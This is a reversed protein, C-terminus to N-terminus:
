GSVSTTLKRKAEFAFSASDYQLIDSFVLGSSLIVQAFIPHNMREKIYLELSSMNSSSDHNKLHLSSMIM